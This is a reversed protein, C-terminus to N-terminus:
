SPRAPSVISRLKDMDTVVLQRYKSEVVGHRKRLNAVASEVTSKGLLLTKALDHQRPGTITVRGADDPEKTGAITALHLLLASIRELPTRNTTCYIAEDSRHRAELSQLLALQIRGRRKLLLNMRDVPCPMVWTTSLCVTQVSSSPDILKAEGLLQGVGRFRAIVPAGPGRGFPFREQVTCGGLVIFVLEDGTGIPLTQGQTYTRADLGWEQVFLPWLSRDLFDLFSGEPMQQRGMLVETPNFADVRPTPQGM